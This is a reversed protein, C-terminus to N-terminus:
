DQKRKELNRLTRRRTHYSKKFVERHMCGATHVDLWSFTTGPSHRLCVSGGEGGRVTYSTDCFGCCEALRVPLKQEKAACTYYPVVETGNELAVIVSGLHGQKRAQQQGGGERGGAQGGARRRERTTGYEPAEVKAVIAAGRFTCFTAAASWRSRDAPPPLPLPAPSGDFPRAPAVQGLMLPPLLAGRPSLSAGLTSPIPSSVLLM